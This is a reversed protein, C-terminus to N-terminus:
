FNYAITFSMSGNIEPALSIQLNPSYPVKEIVRHAAFGILVGLGGGAVVQSIYHNNVAISLAAIGAAYCGLGIGWMPGRTLGLYTAFYAALTTHGSPNGGHVQNEKSYEGNWPRLCASVELQKILVKSSWAWILGSSFVQATKRAYEDQHFCGMLGYLTFPLAMAGEDITMRKLWKPPQHINEHKEYDYFKNHIKRDAKRAALYFPATFTIVKMSEISLIEQGIEYMDRIGDHFYNRVDQRKFEVSRFATPRNKHPYPSIKQITNTKNENDNNHGQICFNIIGISITLLFRFQKM